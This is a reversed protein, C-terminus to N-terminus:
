SEGIPLAGCIMMASRSPLQVNRRTSLQPDFGHAMRNEQRESDPDQCEKDHTQSQCQAPGYRTIRALCFVVMATKQSRQSGSLPKRYDVRLGSWSIMASKWFDAIIEGGVYGPRDEM